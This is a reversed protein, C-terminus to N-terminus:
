KRVERLRLRFDALEDLLWPVVCDECLIRGALRWCVEGRYLEGGCLCCEAAPFTRQTDRHNKHVTRM